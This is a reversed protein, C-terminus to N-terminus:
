SALCPLTGIMLLVILVLEACSSGVLSTAQHLLYTVILTRVTNQIGSDISAQSMSLSPSGISTSDKLGFRIAAPVSCSVMLSSEPNVGDLGKKVKNHGEAGNRRRKLINFRGRHVTICYGHDCHSNM